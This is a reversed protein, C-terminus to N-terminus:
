FRTLCFPAREPAFLRDAVALAGATSEAIRGGAGLTSPRVGGLYIAGLDAVDMVLDAPDDTRTTVAAAVDGAADSGVALRYCGATAPRFADVVEIVLEGPAGYGRADLAAVPDLVRVWLFDSEGTVRYARDDVLRWRLPPDVPGGAIDLSSTLDVDLLYRWLVAEADPDAAVVESTVTTWHGAPTGRRVSYIAYGCAPEGARGCLVTFHEGGGVWSQVEAFIAPWFSEPRTLGGPWSAVHRDFVAPAVTVAEADDVLRLWWEGAVPEAFASGERDVTAYALRTAVGYGFRRYITAESATLVALAEGREVVDDLQADMLSRLVGRRRHTPLVGVATVGAVPVRGGGPLTLTQSNAGAVGCLVGDPGFAGLTRPWEVTAASAARRTPDSRVSFAADDLDIFLEVESPDLPRLTLDM